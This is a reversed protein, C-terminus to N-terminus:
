ETDEIDVPVEEDYKKLIFIIIDHEMKMRDIFDELDPRSRRTIEKLKAKIGLNFSGCAREYHENEFCDYIILHGDYTSTSFTRYWRIKGQYMLENLTKTGDNYFIREKNQLDTFRLRRINIPSIRMKKGQSNKYILGDIIGGIDIVDPTLLHTRVKLKSNITDNYKTIIEIDVIKQASTLNFFILPIYFCIKKM